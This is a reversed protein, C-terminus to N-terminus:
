NLKEEQNKSALYILRDVDAWGNEDLILEIMEPKHRLVLSLFKSLKVQNSNMRKKNVYFIYM